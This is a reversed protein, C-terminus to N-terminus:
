WIRWRAQGSAWEAELFSRDRLSDMPHWFGHHVYARLQDDRALREMPEREWVTEDGKIM